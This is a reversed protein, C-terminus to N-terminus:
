LSYLVCGFEYRVSCFRRSFAWVFSTNM